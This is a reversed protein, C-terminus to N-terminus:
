PKCPQPKEKEIWVGLRISVSDFVTQGPPIVSCITDKTGHMDVNRAVSYSHCNRISFEISGFGDTVQESRIQFGCPIGAASATTATAVVGGSALAIAAAVSAAVHRSGMARYAKMIPLTASRERVHDHLQILFL